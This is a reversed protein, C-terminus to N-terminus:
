GGFPLLHTISGFMRQLQHALSLTLRLELNADELAGDIEKSASGSIVLVVHIVFICGTLLTTPYDISLRRCHQM